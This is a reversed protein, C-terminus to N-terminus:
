SGKERRSVRSIWLFTGKKKPEWMYIPCHEPLFVNMGALLKFWFMVKRITTMPMALRSLIKPTWAGAALILQKGRCTARSTKVTVGEGSDEAVWSIMPEDFHLEAGHASAAALHQRICEEPHLYGAKPEYLAIENPDLVFQPFRRRMQVADLMEHALMHMEASKCSGSLLEGTPEGIMLGGTIQLLESRTDAQLREWLEYSRYLLPVYSPHEFYAQRIIRSSGHSSGRDHPPSFADIGLAKYGRQSLQYVAASGMAGLGVVIADFM